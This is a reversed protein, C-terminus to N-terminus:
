CKWGQLSARTFIPKYFNIVTRLKETATQSNDVSTDKGTDEGSVTQILSADFSSDLTGGNMVVLINNASIGPMLQAIIAPIADQGFKGGTSSDPLGLAAAIAAGYQPALMAKGTGDQNETVVKSGEEVENLVDTYDTYETSEIGNPDEGEAPLGEAEPAELDDPIELELDEVGQMFGDYADVEETYIDMTDLNLDQTVKRMEIETGVEGAWKFQQGAGIGSSVAAAAGMVGFAYAWATAGFAWSGSAALAFAEYASKASSAANLTQAGGEVYCMVQTTTDFSAAYDTLGEIEGMTEAAVDYGDQYTSIEDYLDAVEDTTDESMEEISAGIESLYGLVEKYLEKESDNLPEGADIKEQIALYTQMYMDYESKEEEIESNTEENIYNAEDSLSIIEDSMCEMEGQVEALAGQAGTMEGQLKDCAVKEDKNPNKIWYAAATAAGVVCGVICGASKGINKGAQKATEETVKKAAEEAAKETAKATAKQVVGKAAEKTLEQGVLKTAAETAVKTVVKKTVIKGVAGAAALTADAVGRAITKGKKGDFGDTAKKAAEEGENRYRAYEADDFEYENEDSSVTAQWSKVRDGWAQTIRGMDEASIGMTNGYCHYNLYAKRCYAESNINIAMKGGPNNEKTIYIPM